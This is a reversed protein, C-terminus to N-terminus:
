LRRYLLLVTGPQQAIELPFGEALLARGSARLTEGSDQNRVEYYRDPELGQLRAQMLPFPSAPRRFALVMGEGLDPRDWQWATWFAPDLSYPLLPYFDGYFYPRLTVQETFAARIWATPGPPPPDSEFCNCGLVIGPGLASRFAYTDAKEFSGTSLPAWPALGQTQGQMGIPDFGPWCQFDSRWLPISRSLTELDIRRGGSACNDIVLGPHRALLDDWFRYLGEIHRIESIGVRDPADAAEWFPAPDMNFDQRYVTIQGETILGSILDTLGGRAEPLGLNLLYSDGIPGQLWDPHERTFWTGQYVRESEFWLVFGFGLEALAAGVPALGQPYTSRNPWWNGVHAWWDSNFVTAGERYPADGHWGADIWFCDLPVQHDRWWRAKAIQKDAPNEGWNAYCIPAQLLQGHPRPSYHALLLRRWLNHARVRDGEWGLLLIRPTRVEEGPYLTFCTRPMGARVQVGAEGRRARVQWDGTWGVAGIWGTAGTQLNFFPLTGNSSRGGRSTLAFEAGAALPAEHPAFDDLRCDSGNAWHLLCPQDPAALFEAELAQVDEILPTNATGGNRLYAVWEVAPFDAYLTVECRLELGSAPDTLTLTRRTAEATAQQTESCRWEGLLAASEVGGYRFAVPFAGPETPLCAFHAAVWDRVRALEPETPLTSM